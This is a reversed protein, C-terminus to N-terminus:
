LDIGNIINGYMNNNKLFRFNKKLTQIVDSDYENEHEQVFNILKILKNKINKNEENSFNEEKMIEDFIKPRVIYLDLYYRNITTLNDKNRPYNKYFEKKFTNFDTFYEKQKSKKHSDIIKKTILGEFLIPLIYEIFKKEQEAKTLSPNKNVFDEFM